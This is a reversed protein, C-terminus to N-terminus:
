DEEEDTKPLLRVVMLQPRNCFRINISHTGLGRGVIMHKGDKEFEGAGLAVSGFIGFFFDREAGLLQTGGSNLRHRGVDAVVCEERLGFVVREHGAVAM